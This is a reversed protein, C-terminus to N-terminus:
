IAHIQFDCFSAEQISYDIFPIGNMIFVDTVFTAYKHLLQFERSISLCDSDVRKPKCRVTNIRVGALYLRFIFNAHTTGKFTIPCNQIQNSRVMKDFDDVTPNGLRWSVKYEVDARKIEANTIGEYNKRVTNVKSM